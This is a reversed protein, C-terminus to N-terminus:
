KLAEAMELHSKLTPLTKSAWEKLAENDGGKAYREFLDVASKHANIQDDDYAEAFNAGSSAGLRDLKDQHAKDLSSPIDAKVAGSAVLGKLESSTKEHDSIMRGAFTAAAGDARAKALESSKIEFMDSIAVEKVFDPTSPSVGLVSNVGMKEAASQAVVAAPICLVMAGLIIARKM